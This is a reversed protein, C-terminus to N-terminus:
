ISIIQGDQCMGGQGVSTTISPVIGKRSKQNITIDILQRSFLGESYDVMSAHTHHNNDIRALSINLLYGFVEVQNHILTLDGCLWQAFWEKASKHYNPKHSKKWANFAVELKDMDIENHDDLFSYILNHEKDYFASPRLLLGPKECALLLKHSFTAYPQIIVQQGNKLPSCASLDNHHIILFQFPTNNQISRVLPQADISIVLSLLYALFIFLYNM